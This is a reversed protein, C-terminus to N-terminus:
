IYMNFLRLDDDPLINHKEFWTQAWAHVRDRFPRIWDDHWSQFVLDKFFLPTNEGHRLVHDAVHFLTVKEDLRKELDPFTPHIILTWNHIYAQTTSSGLGEIRKELKKMDFNYHLPYKEVNFEILVLSFQHHPNEPTWEAIKQACSKLIQEEVWTREMIYEFCLLGFEFEVKKMEWNAFQPVQLKALIKKQTQKNKIMSKKKIAFHKTMKRTEVKSFGSELGDQVDKVYEDVFSSEIMAIYTNIKESFTVREDCLVLEEEERLPTKTTSFLKKLM